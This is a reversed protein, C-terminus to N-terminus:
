AARCGPCLHQTREAVAAVLVERVRLPHFMVDEWSFRLVLWGNVVFRNYRRADRRLAARDGHWAFSDAELIIGLREDVLDPRGLFDAGRVSVQPRVALGPVDRTIARLTSEFPNDAAPSAFAVVERVKRSGPGRADRALAAMRASRFGHRLASDAVALGSDFAEARLCDILTRDRGTVMGDIDDAVLDARHVDLGAVQAATVKRNRPLTVAPREPPLKV